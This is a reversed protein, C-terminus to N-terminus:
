AAVQQEALRERQLADLREPRLAAMTKRALADDLEGTDLEGRIRINGFGGSTAITLKM